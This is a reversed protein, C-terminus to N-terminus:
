RLVPIDHEEAFAKVKRRFRNGIKEFLAPSPLPFGWHETLFRVVQGAVQLKPVYVNLYIRDVCDIDLGVHGDLVENINTVSAVRVAHM